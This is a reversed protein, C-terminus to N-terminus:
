DPSDYCHCYYAILTQLCVCMAANQLQGFLTRLQMTHGDSRHHGALFRTDMITIPVIM